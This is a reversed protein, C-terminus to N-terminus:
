KRAFKQVIGRDILDICVEKAGQDTYLFKQQLNMMMNSIDARIKQDYSKFDPTGFDKIARRFNENAEFPDLVKEKLNYIYRELLAHFLSTATLSRGEVMMEQTLTQSTYERQTQTRFQIRRDEPFDAGLIKAEIARFFDESIQLREGTFDSLPSAGPEFNLAFLYNQIDRSIRAKNYYYLSEKIQQLVTYDYNDVLSDLFGEPIVAALDKRLKTFFNVLMSISILKGEAGYTSFFENFLRISDRGSLGKQGETEGESIIRRRRKATFRKVDEEDLWPPINGTYLEMKLLQMGRDCYPSYRDQNALWESIGPSSPNMRTSIIVRAFNHLVRPLFREAIRAGFINMYIAVETNLDLVYPIQVYEIRDSFSPIDGFNDRDEPNMVALLLSDVNEEINNVKHVGESIINHLEVLRETNRSKIDMLAYVGNNTRAYRSYVYEVEHADNLLSNLRMQLRPNTIAERRPTSDGPNFVTVGEGVRRRVLFPRAYVMALVSRPGEMRDLFAQYLSQCITCPQEKFVWEYQKEGFLAKKFEPEDVLDELFIRRFPKPVLLIPHDHSPCALEVIPESSWLYDDPGPELEGDFGDASDLPADGLKNGPEGLLAHLKDLLPGAAFSSEGGLLRRDLRWVVEYRHGQRSNAFEEYKALLNNLFTSKGCGPPGNFMFIKNQQVGRKFDAALNVMRNAFLRDAFFPNDAGEVFLRNFDYKVYGISEPDDPYENIGEDVYHRIMDHFLQFVNRLHRAPNSRVLGLYDEFPILTRNNRDAAVRDLNGLAQEIRNHPM